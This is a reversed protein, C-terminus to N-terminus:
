AVPDRRRRLRHALLGLTGIGLIALSSPEPVSAPQSTILVPQISIFQSGVPGQVLPNQIGPFFSNQDISDAGGTVQLSTLTTNGNLSSDMLNGSPADSNPTHSLGLNHGLEHANLEGGFRGAAFNSEVAFKNGGVQGCGVINTNFGSCYDITDVYFFYATPTAGGLGFLQQLQSNNQISLLSPDVHVQTPLFQIDIPDSGFSDQSFISDMEAENTTVIAADVHQSALVTIVLIASVVGRPILRRDM